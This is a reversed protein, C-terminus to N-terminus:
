STKAPRARTGVVALTRTAARASVPRLIGAGTPAGARRGAPVAPLLFGYPAGGDDHHRAHATAVWRVYRSRALPLRGFRQHVLLDHVVVYAAGYATLGAGVWLLPRLPEVLHGALMAAFVAAGIMLPYADNGEVAPRPRTHHSRHWGWGRGHMVRRHVLAALPEMALFAVAAVAWPLWPTSV